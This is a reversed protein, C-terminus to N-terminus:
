VSGTAPEVGPIVLEARTGAIPRTFFSIKARDGYLTFLRNELSILGGGGERVFNNYPSPSFGCGNDEVTILLGEEEQEVSVKVM